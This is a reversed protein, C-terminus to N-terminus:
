VAPTGGLLVTKPKEPSGSTVIVFVQGNLGAIQGGLVQGIVGITSRFAPTQQRIWSAGDRSLWIAGGEKTQYTAVLWDGAQALAYGDCDEANLCVQLDTSEWESGDTTHWITVTGVVGRGLVSFGGGPAPAIRYAVEMEDPMAVDAWHEADTSRWGIPDPQNGTGLVDGVALIGRGAAATDLMTITANRTSGVATQRWSTETTWTWLGYEAISLGTARAALVTQGSVEADTLAGGQYFENKSEIFEWSAGDPSRWAVPRYFDNPGFFTGFSFLTDGLRVLSGMTTGGYVAPGFDDVMAKIFTPDPVDHRTWDRGDASTWSALGDADRGVAVLRGSDSILARVEGPFPKAAWTLEPAPEPSETPTLSASTQVIPSGAISGSPTVTSTCGMGVLSAVVVAVATRIRYTM